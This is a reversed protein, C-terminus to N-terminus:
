HSKHVKHTLRFTLFGGLLIALTGFVIALYEHIGTEPLHLWTAASIWAIVIVGCIVGIIADINRVRRSLYGLLFLGLMGGSFISSLKWWADLISDVNVLALAVLAGIVGIVLSSLKLVLLRERDTASKRLHSYYDTLVITASSTIGTAVTSMGAAFISAFLLGTMGVPLQNVIFFPFVYDPKEPLVAPNVQYFAYLATGILFFVASVPIFLYGGFLASFKAERMSKATHYRQVYNQDIGYNQLNTFIGYVLCVWFTSEGLSSGFDGLSFKNDRVAIEFAQSPGEPMSFLLIALCALAGGIMIVGQIAETWIVGKIGGMMSYLIIATSTLVIILRIDWGLLINMPLALLFTISGVRAVQTLLYCASAYLRAWLGFRRQLFSYASVSNQRRYFPVFYKAAFYSAIPISLSFVFANWNGAFAKGPYGLYSISSVYTSFISMGVVWGPINGGAKTFDDASSKKKYFSCGYLVIGGTFVFFIILDIISM